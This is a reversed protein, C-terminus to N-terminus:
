KERSFVLDTLSELLPHAQLSTTLSIRLLPLKLEEQQFQEAPPQSQCSQLIQAEQCGTIFFAVNQTLLSLSM